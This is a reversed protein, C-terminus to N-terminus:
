MSSWNRSAVLDCCGQCHVGTCCLLSETSESLAALQVDALRLTDASEDTFFQAVTLAVTRLPRGAKLRLLCDSLRKSLYHLAQRMRLLLPPLHAPLDREDVRRIDERCVCCRGRLQVYESVVHQHQRRSMTSDSGVTVDHFQLTQVLVRGSQYCLLLAKAVAEHASVSSSMVKNKVKAPMVLSDLLKVCATVIRQLAELWGPSALHTSRMLPTLLEHLLTPEQEPWANLWIKRLLAEIAVFIEGDVPRQGAVNKSINSFDPCLRELRESHFTVAKKIQKSSSKSDDLVGCVASSGTVDDAGQALIQQARANGDVEPQCDDQVTVDDDASDDSSSVFARRRKRTMKRSVAQMDSAEDESSSAFAQRYRSAASQRITTSHLSTAEDLSSRRAKSTWHPVMRKCDTLLVRVDKLTVDAACAAARVADDVSVRCRTLCTANAIAVDSPLTQVCWAADYGNTPHAVDLDDPGAAADDVSDDDVTNDPDDTRDLDSITLCFSEVKIPEKKIKIKKAKDVDEFVRVSTKSGKVQKMTTQNSKDANGEEVAKKSSKNNSAKDGSKESTKNVRVNKRTKQSTKDEKDKKRVNESAKPGKDKKTSKESTKCEMDKKKAKENTKDKIKKTSKVGTKDKKTQEASNERAKDDTVKKSIKIRNVNKSIQVRTAKVDLTESQESRNVELVNASSAPKLKKNAVNMEDDFERSSPSAEKCKISKTRKLKTGAAGASSSLEEQRHWHALEDCADGSPGARGGVFGGTTM